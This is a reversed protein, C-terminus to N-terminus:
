EDDSPDSDYEAEEELLRDIPSNVGSAGSRAGSRASTRGSDVVLFKGTRTPSPMSMDAMYDLRSSGRDYRINRQFSQRILAAKRRKAARSSIGVDRDDDRASHALLTEEGREALRQLRESEKQRELMVEYHPSAKLESEDMSTWDVLARNHPALLELELAHAFDSTSQRSPPSSRRPATINHYEPMNTIDQSGRRSAVRSGFRSDLELTTSLDRSVKRSIM